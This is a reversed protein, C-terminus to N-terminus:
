DDVRFLVLRKKKGKWEQLVWEGLKQINEEKVFGSLYDYSLIKLKGEEWLFYNVGSIRLLNIFKKYDEASNLSEYILDPVPCVLEEGYNAYFNIWVNAGAIKVFKRNADRRIFEGIEKYPLKDSRRAKFNEFFTTFILLLCLVIALDKKIGKERFYLFINELGWGIIIFSPFIMSAVYRKEMVWTFLTFLYLYVLSVLILFIFYGALPDSKLRRKLDKLGAIFFLFFPYFFASVMKTILIGLALIWLHSKVYKFFGPPISKIAKSDLEKLTETLANDFPNKIYSFTKLRTAFYIDWLSKGDKSIFLSIGAIFILFVIPFGFSILGKFNRGRVVLFLFSAVFFLTGEIRALMGLSYSFASLFLFLNKRKDFGTVFLYIGTTNFFWFLTDKMIDVNERVFVPNLAFILLVFLSITESLFRRALLYVPILTLLGFVINVVKGATIWDPIIIHFLSVFLPYISVFPYGCSKAEQWMGKSVAYAQYLYITSDTNIVELRHAAYLRVLLAFIFISVIFLVKRTKDDIVKLNM